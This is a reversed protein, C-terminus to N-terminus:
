RGIVSISYVLIWYNGQITNNETNTTSSQFKTFGKFLSDGTITMRYDDAWLGGIGIQGLQDIIFPYQDEGSRIKLINGSSYDADNYIHWKIDGNNMLRFVSDGTPNEANLAFGAWSASVELPHAPDTTGVGVNGEHTTGYGISGSEPFTSEASVNAYAAFICILSLTTKIRNM